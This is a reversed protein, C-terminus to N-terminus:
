VAIIGAVGSILTGVLTLALGWWALDLGSGGEGGIATGIRQELGAIATARETRERDVSESLRDTRKRWEQEGRVRLEEVNDVKKELYAGWEGASADPGPRMPLTQVFASMSGVAAISGGTEIYHTGGKRRGVARKVSAWARGPPLPRGRFLEWKTAAVGWIALGLGVVQFVLAVILWWAM